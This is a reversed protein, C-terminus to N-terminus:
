KTRLIAVAKEVAQRPELGGAEILVRKQSTWAEAYAPYHYCTGMHAGYQSTAPHFRTAIKENIQLNM